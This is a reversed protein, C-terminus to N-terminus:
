RINIGLDDPRHGLPEDAMAAAPGFGKVSVNEDTAIKRIEELIMETAKRM